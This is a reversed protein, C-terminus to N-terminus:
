ASTHSFLHAAGDERGVRIAASDEGSMATEVVFPQCCIECTEILQQHMVTCDVPLMQSSDCCPCRIEVYEVPNM